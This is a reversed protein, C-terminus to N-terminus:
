VDFVITQLPDLSFFNNRSCYPPWMFHLAKFVHFFVNSKGRHVMFEKFNKTKGDYEANMSQIFEDLRAVEDILESSIPMREGSGNKSECLIALIEFDDMSVNYFEGFRKFEKRSLGNEHAFGRRVDTYVVIPFLVFRTSAALVVFISAFLVAKPHSGIFYGFEYFM